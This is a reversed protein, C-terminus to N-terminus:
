YLPNWHTVVIYKQPSICIYFFFDLVQYCFFFFFLRTQHTPDYAPSWFVPECISKKQGPNVATQFFFVFDTWFCQVTESFKLDFCLYTYPFENKELSQTGSIGALM